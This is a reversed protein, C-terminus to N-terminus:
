GVEPVLRGVVKPGNAKERLYGLISWRPAVALQAAVDFSPVFARYLPLM